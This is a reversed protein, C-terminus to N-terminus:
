RYHCSFEFRCEDQSHCLICALHKIQLVNLLCLIDDVLRVPFSPVVSSFGVPFPFPDKSVELFSRACAIGLDEGWIKWGTSKTM